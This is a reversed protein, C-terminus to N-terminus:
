RLGRAARLPVNTEAPDFGGHASKMGRERPLTPDFVGSPGFPVVVVDGIRARAADTCPGLWNSEVLEERTLVWADREFAARTHELLQAARGPYGYLSRFRADGTTIATESRVADTPELWGDIHVQGHDATVVLATSSPLAHLLLEIYRDASTVEADFFGDRLGHRHAVEDVLPDYLYVFPSGTTVERAVLETASARSLAARYDCGRLHAKTFESHEYQGPGVVPIVDGGFPTRPQFRVPDVATGNNTRWRLVNLIDSGVRVRFGTVGHRGPLCGTALSTLAAATTAPAVTPIAGGDMASLTPMEASDVVDAGLGDLLLLVISEATRAAEPLWGPRSPPDARLAPVLNGIHGLEWNPPAPLDSTM